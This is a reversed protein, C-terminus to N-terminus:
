DDVSILFERMEEIKPVYAQRPEEPKYFNVFRKRWFPIPNIKVYRFYILFDFFSDLSCYHQNISKQSLRKEYHIYNHYKELFTHYDLTDSVNLENVDDIENIELFKKSNSRYMRATKPELCKSICDKEFNILIKSIENSKAVDAKSFIFNIRESLTKNGLIEPNNIANSEIM